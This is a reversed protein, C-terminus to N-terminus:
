CLGRSVKFFTNRGELRYLALYRVGGISWVNLISIPPKQMVGRFPEIWSKLRAQRSLSVGREKRQSSALLVAREASARRSKNGCFATHRWAARNLYRLGTDPCRGSSLNRKRPRACAHCLRNAEEARLPERVHCRMTLHQLTSSNAPRRKSHHAMEGYFAAFPM